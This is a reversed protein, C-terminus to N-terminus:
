FAMQILINVLKILFKVKSLFPLNSIPRYSELASVHMNGKKLLPKIIATKLQTLFIGSHLSSNVIHLLDNLLSSFVQKLINTPLLDLSFTSPKLHQVIDELTRADVPMFDSFLSSNKRYM